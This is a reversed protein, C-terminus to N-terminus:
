NVTLNIVTTKTISGATGTVTITYSGTTTGTNGSGGGSGGSNGGGGCSVVGGTLLALMFIM